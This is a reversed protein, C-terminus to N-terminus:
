TFRMTWVSVEDQGQKLRVLIEVDRDIMQIMIKNEDLISELSTIKANSTDIKRQIDDSARKLENLDIAVQRIAIEKEIKIM